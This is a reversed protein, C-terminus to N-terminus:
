GPNMGTHRRIPGPRCRGRDKLRGSQEAQVVPPFGRDHRDGGVQHVADGKAHQELRVSIHGGHASRGDLRGDLIVPEDPVGAGGGQNGGVTGDVPHAHGSEVACGHETAKDPARVPSREPQARGTIGRDDDAAVSRPGGAQFGGPTGLTAPKREVFPHDRLDGARQQRCRQQHAPERHLAARNLGDDVEIGAETFLAARGASLVTAVDENAVPRRGGDRHVTRRRYPEIRALWASDDDPGALGERDDECDRLAFWDHVHVRVGGPGCEFSVLLPPSAPTLLDIVSERVALQGDATQESETQQGIRRRPRGDGRRAGREGFVNAPDAVPVVAIRPGAVGADADGGKKADALDLLGASEQGPQQVGAAELPGAERYKEGQVAAMGGGLVGEWAPGAIGVALGNPDTVAGGILVLEVAVSPNQVGGPQKDVASMVEVGLGPPRHAAKGVFNRLAPGFGIGTDPLDAPVGGVVHM